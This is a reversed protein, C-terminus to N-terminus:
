GEAAARLTAIAQSVTAHGGFIASGAVLVQAGAAAAAAATNPTIGGDVELVCEPQLADRLKRARALRDISGPIFAQGGFGPNVTMLLALDLYPLAEELFGLPTLPNLALGVRVGAERLQQLLRHLHPAVEAHVTIGDAGASAFADVLRDPHTVMLHVDLPLATVQRVAAVVAPGMTINPVFHGDMVDIHIMDAGGEEAARVATGLDTFDAALISPAIRVPSV